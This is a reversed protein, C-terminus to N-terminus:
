TPSPSLQRVLFTQVERLLLTPTLMTTSPPFALGSGRGTLTRRKYSYYIFPTPKLFPFANIIVM